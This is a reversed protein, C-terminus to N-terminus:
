PLAVIGMWYRDVLALVQSLLEFTSPKTIYSNAGLRYSEVIDNELGSTTWVILPIKRCDPHSKIEALAERGDKKPMNLDLFILDPIPHKSADRFKGKHFLYDLLEEGDKVFRLAPTSGNNKFAEAMLMRDEPDDDAILVVPKKKPAKM